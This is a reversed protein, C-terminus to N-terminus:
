QTGVAGTCTGVGGGSLLGQGPIVSGHCNVPSGGNDFGLGNDTFFVLGGDLFPSVTATFTVMAGVAVSDKSSTLTTTTAFPGVAVRVTDSSAAYNADGSYTAVITHYGQSSFAFNDPCYPRGSTTITTIAACGPITVGDDTFSVTGGDPGPSVTATFNDSSDVVSALGDSDRLTTTTPNQGVTETLTPSFSGAYNADGSYTAVISYAGPTFPNPACTAVGASVVTAACGPIESGGAGAPLGNATFEVYGGDPVPSVTATFTVQAGPASPNQSSTLTTTTATTVDATFDVTTKDANPCQYTVTGNYTGPSEYTHTGDVNGNSQTGPSTATGDGWNITAGEVSCSVQAVAGSFPQGATADITTAGLASAPALLLLGGVLAVVARVSWARIAGCGSFVRLLSRM